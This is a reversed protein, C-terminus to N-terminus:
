RWNVVRRELAAFVAYLAIAEAFLLLTAAFLRATALGANATVLLHGLGKDSGSLEGFV